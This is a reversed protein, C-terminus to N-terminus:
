NIIIDDPYTKLYEILTIIVRNLSISSCKDITDKTTHFYRYDFDIVLFSPVGAANLSTHDDKIETDIRGSFNAPFFTKGIQWFRDAEKEAWLFSSKDRTLNLNNECIMDLVIAGMPKKHPYIEKIQSTFYESGIPQWSQVTADENGEEGDFFIIDVGTQVMEPKEALQRGLEILLATGSGSDNAGPVPMLPSRKDRDAYRKSDYHTAVIIREKKDPNFRAIINKMAAKNGPGITRQWEQKIVSKSYMSMRAFIYEQAKIKGTSTMYRPGFSLLDDITGMMEKGPDTEEGILFIRSSYYDTPAYNDTFVPVNEQVIAEPNIQKREDLGIVKQWEPKKQGNIGMIIVGQVGANATSTVAFFHSNPFVERFTKIQAAAISPQTNSLSGLINAIFVGNPNLKSKALTYFERTTFHPPISYMSYYVDSFIYDYNIEEERLLRRGDEIRTIINPDDKLNFYKKAIEPLSPEIESVTVVSGPNDKRLSKPITYVGGGIVLARKIQPTVAQYLNYFNTYDVVLEESDLYIAGSYSKDQFFLRVPHGNLKGERVTIKEYIGDKSWLIQPNQDDRNIALYGPLLSITGIGLFILKKKGELLVLLPIGGLLMLFCGTCFIINTVGMNPILVFGTLLSGLISGGTSWFFIEGAIKGVGDKPTITQGLKVTIPTIFGLLIGPVLLTVMSSILPGTKMSLVSGLIPLMKKGIVLEALVAAGAVFIMLYLYKFSHKKESVLGGFYYGLSLAALFVSIVSSSTFITNGFYPSLLRLSVIEIVLSSIGTLFVVALL